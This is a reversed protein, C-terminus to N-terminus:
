SVQRQEEEIWEWALRLVSMLDKNSNEYICPYDDNAPVDRDFLQVCWVENVTYVSLQHVGRIKAMLEEPSATLEGTFIADPLNEFAECARKKDSWFGEALESEELWKMLKESSITKDM